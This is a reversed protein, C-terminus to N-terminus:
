ATTSDSILTYQITSIQTVTITHDSTRGQVKRGDQNINYFYKM